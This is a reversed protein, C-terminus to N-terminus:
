LDFGSAGILQVICEPTDRYSSITWTTFGDAPVEDNDAFTSRDTVQEDDSLCVADVSIPGKVTEDHPNTADGTLDGNPLEEFNEIDLSIINEFDGLGETFDVHLDPIAAGAPLDRDSSDVFVYGFAYGDPPVVNPQVSHSGGTGLTEGDPGVARGTVEVRSITEDTRNQVIFPFSTNGEPESIVVVSVEGEDGEPLADEDGVTTLASYAQPSDPLEEEDEPEEEPSEQASDEEIDEEASEVEGEASEAEAAQEGEDEEIDGCATLALLGVISPGLYAALRRNM